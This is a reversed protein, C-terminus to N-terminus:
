FKLSLHPFSHTMIIYWIGYKTEIMKVLILTMVCVEEFAADVYTPETLLHVYIGEKM